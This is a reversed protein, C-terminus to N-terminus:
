FYGLWAPADDLFLELAEPDPEVLLLRVDLQQLLLLAPDGDVDGVTQNALADQPFFPTWGIQNVTFTSKPTDKVENRPRM